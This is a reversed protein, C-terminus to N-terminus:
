SVTLLRIYVTEGMVLYGVFIRPQGSEPDPGTVFLRCGTGLRPEPVGIRHAVIKLHEVLDDWFRGFKPNNAKESEVYASITPTLRIKFGTPPRAFRM